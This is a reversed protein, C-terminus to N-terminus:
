CEYAISNSSCSGSFHFWHFMIIVNLHSIFLLSCNLPYHILGGNVSKSYPLVLSFKILTGCTWQFHVRKWKAKNLPLITLAWSLWTLLFNNEHQNRYNRMTSLIQGKNTSDSDIVWMDWNNDPQFVSVYTIIKSILTITGLQINCNLAVILDLKM